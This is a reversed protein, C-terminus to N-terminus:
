KELLDVLGKNGNCVFCRRPENDGLSLLAPAKVGSWRDVEGLLFAPITSSSAEIVLKPILMGVQFSGNTTMAVVDSLLFLGTPSVAGLTLARSTV